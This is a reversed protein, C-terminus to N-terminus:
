KDLQLATDLGQTALQSFHTFEQTQASESQEELLLEAESRVRVPSPLDDNLGFEKEIRYVAENIMPRPWHAQRMASRAVETSRSREFTRRAERYRADTIYERDNPGGLCGALIAPVAASLLVAAVVRYRRCSKM